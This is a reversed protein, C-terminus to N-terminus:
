KEERININLQESGTLVIECPVATVVTNRVSALASDRGSAMIGYMSAPLDPLEKGELGVGSGAYSVRVYLQDRRYQMAILKLLQAVNKPAFRDPADKRDAAECAGADCVQVAAPGLPADRPIAISVLKRVREGRLPKLEVTMRLSEGRRVESNDLAVTEISAFRRVPEFSAEVKVSAPFIREIGNQTLDSLTSRVDLFVRAAAGVGQGGSEINEIVLPGHGEPVVTIKYRCTLEEPPEGRTHAFLFGALAADGPGVTNRVERVECQCSWVGQRMTLALGESGLSVLVIEVRDLL